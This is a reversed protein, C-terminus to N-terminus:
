MSSFSGESARGTSTTQPAWSGTTVTRQALSTARSTPMSRVSAAPPAICHTPSAACASGYSSGSVNASIMSRNTPSSTVVLQGTVAPLDICPTTDPSVESNALTLRIVLTVVVASAAVRHRHKQQERM